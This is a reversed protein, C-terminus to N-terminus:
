WLRRVSGTQRPGGDNSRGGRGGEDEEECWGHAREARGGHEVEAAVGPGRVAGQTVMMTGGWVGPQV